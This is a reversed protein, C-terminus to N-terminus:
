GNPLQTLALINGDPDKVWCGKAGRRPDTYVGNETKLHPLDYEEFLVGRRRLEAMEETLDEVLFGAVTHEAGTYGPPREYIRLITGGGANFFVGGDAAVASESLGLADSYFRKARELDTTPLTACVPVNALM